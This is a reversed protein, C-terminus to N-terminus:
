QVVVRHFTEAYTFGEPKGIEASIALLRPQLEEFRDSLQSVHARLAAIKLDMTATIDVVFNQVPAGSIYIEKIKHPRLGEEQLLEPFDWPNQCAPYIAELTARGAALHDPHYRGIFLAPTWSRDPSQCIVRTPRYRRMLRVLERRLELSPQLQGDPHGLFVIDKVGLVDCAARQEREREEVVARRAVPGVDTALDSGGGSGDTCLVYHVDWGEKVWSAVTGAAAFEADDPHAVIVMAVQEPNDTTV